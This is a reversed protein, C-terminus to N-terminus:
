FLELQKSPMKNDFLKTDPVNSKGVIDAYVSVKEQIDKYVDKYFVGDLIGTEIKDTIMRECTELYSLQIKNLHDRFANSKLTTNFLSTKIMDTYHKFYWDAGSSGQCHAYKIFMQCVDTFDKRTEKGDNRKEIWLVDSKNENLQSKILFLEKEKRKFEEIFRIKFELAKKGTLSMALLSFGERTMLYSRLLKGREDHYNSEIFYPKPASFDAELDSVLSDIKQLINKHKKNFEEAVTESKTFLGKKTQMVLNDKMNEGM